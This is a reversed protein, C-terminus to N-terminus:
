RVSPNPVNMLVQGDSQLGKSRRDLVFLQLIRGITSRWNRHHVAAPFLGM